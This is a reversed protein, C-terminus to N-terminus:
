QYRTSEDFVVPREQRMKKIMEAKSSGKFGTGAPILKGLIVNEMLGALKDANGRIASSILIRTTHQFSAASLFSHRSLSVDTIGMVVPEATAVEKGLEKVRANEETLLNAEVIDGVIFDTDGSTKIRKRSFMQRVITEIHKRSVNEGQLEYPKNIEHIIYDVTKDKGAYKFLEDIDASGDTILDGKKVEEGVKVLVTRNLSTSYEIQDKNKKRDELNPTIVIVKEKDTVRIESITGSVSAVVAPNKPKRKEFLEEVRPLGSVIDGSVSATGGAHFTRM